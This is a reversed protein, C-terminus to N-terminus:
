GALRYGLVGDGGRCAAARVLASEAEKASVAVPTGGSFAFGLLKLGGRAGPARGLRPAPFSARGTGLPAPRLLAGPRGPRVLRAPRM